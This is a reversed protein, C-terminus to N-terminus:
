KRRLLVVLVVDLWIWSLLGLGSWLFLTGYDVSVSSGLSLHFKELSKLAPGMFSTFFGLVLEVYFLSYVLCGFLRHVRWFDSLALIGLSKLAPKMWQPRNHVLSGGLFLSFTMAVTLVGITGHYSVFHSRNYAFKSYEIAGFGITLFVLSIFQFVAHRDVTEARQGMSTSTAKGDTQGRKVARDRLRSAQFQLIAVSATCYLLCMAVPHLTFISYAPMLVFTWYPVYVGAFLLVPTTLMEAHHPPLCHFRFVLPLSSYRFFLIIYRM